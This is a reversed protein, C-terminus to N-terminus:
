YHQFNMYVYVTHHLMMQAFLMTNRRVYEIDRRADSWGNAARAGMLMNINCMHTGHM